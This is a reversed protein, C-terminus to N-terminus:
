IKNIKRSLEALATKDNSHIEIEQIEEFRKEVVERALTNIPNVNFVTDENNLYNQYVNELSKLVNVIISCAKYLEGEQITLPPSISIIYDTLVRCLIGRQMLYLSVEYANVPSDHFLEIAFFLGRGRIEKVIKCNMYLYSAIIGEKVDINFSIGRNNIMFDITSEAMKMDLPNVSNNIDTGEGESFIKVYNSNTLLFYNPLYSSTFGEGLLLIDPKIKNKLSLSLNSSTGLSTRTEDVIMIINNKSCLKRVNELYNDDPIIFGKEIDIPELFVACIEKNNSLVENLGEYDNFTVNIINSEFIELSNAISENLIVVKNRDSKHNNMLSIQLSKIFLETRSSFYFIKNYDFSGLLFSSVRTTNPNYVSESSTPLSSMCHIFPQFIQSNNHGFNASYTGSAFDLYIFKNIDQVYAGNCTAIVLPLIKSNNKSYSFEFSLYEQAKRSLFERKYNDYPNNDSLDCKIQGTIPSNSQENGLVIKEVILDTPELQDININEDIISIINAKKGKKKANESTKKVIINKNEPVKQKLPITTQKLEIYSNLNAIFNEEKQVVEEKQKKSKKSSSKVPFNSINTSKKSISEKPRGKSKTPTNSITTFSCNFPKFGSIQRHNRVIKTLKNLNMKFYYFYYYKFNRNLNNLFIAKMNKVLIM